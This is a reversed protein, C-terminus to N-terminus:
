KALQVWFEDDVAVPLILKGLLETEGLCGGVAAECGHIPPVVVRVGPLRVHEAEEILLDSFECASYAGIM